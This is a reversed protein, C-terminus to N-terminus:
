RTVLSLLRARALAISGEFRILEHPVSFTVVHSVELSGGARGAEHSPSGTPRRRAPLALDGMQPLPNSTDGRKMRGSLSCVKVVPM